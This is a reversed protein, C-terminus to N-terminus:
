SEFGPITLFKRKEAADLGAIPGVWARTWLAGPNKGLPYLLRTTFSFVHIYVDVGGYKRM